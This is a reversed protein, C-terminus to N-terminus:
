SMVRLIIYLTSVVSPSNVVTKKVTAPHSVFTVRRFPDIVLGM